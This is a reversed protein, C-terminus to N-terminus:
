NRKWSELYDAAERVFSHPTHPPCELNEKQREKDFYITAEDDLLRAYRKSWRLDTVSRGYRLQKPLIIHNYYTSALRDYSSTDFNGDIYISMPWSQLMVYTLSHIEESNNRLRKERRTYDPKEKNKPNLWYQYDALAVKVANFKSQIARKATNAVSSNKQSNEVYFQAEYSKLLDFTKDLELEFDETDITLDDIFPNRIYSVRRGGAQKNPLQPEKLCVAGEGNMMKYMINEM